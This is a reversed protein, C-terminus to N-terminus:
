VHDATRALMEQGDVLVSELRSAEGMWVVQGFAQEFTDVPRAPRMVVHDAAKGATLSRTVDGLWCARAGGFTAAALIDASRSGPPPTSNELAREM